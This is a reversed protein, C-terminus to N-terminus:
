FPYETNDQRAAAFYFYPKANKKCDRSASVLCCCCCQMLRWLQKVFEYSLLYTKHRTRAFKLPFVSVSNWIVQRIGTRHPTRRRRRKWLDAHMITLTFSHGNHLRSHPAVPFFAFNPCRFPPWRVVTFYCHENTTSGWGDRGAPATPKLKSQGTFQQSSCCISSHCAPSRCIEHSSDIAASTWLIAITQHEANDMQSIPEM